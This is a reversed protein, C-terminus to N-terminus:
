FYKLDRGFDCAEYRAPMGRYTEAHALYRFFNIIFIFPNFIKLIPKVYKM